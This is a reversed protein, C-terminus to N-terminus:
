RLNETLYLIDREDHGEVRGSQLVSPTYGGVYEKGLFVVSLVRQILSIPRLRDLM